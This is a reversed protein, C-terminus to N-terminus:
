SIRRINRVRLNSVRTGNSAAIAATLVAILTQDNDLIEEKINQSNINSLISKERKQNDRDYFLIKFLDLILSIAILATFVLSMSFFTLKLIDMTNM